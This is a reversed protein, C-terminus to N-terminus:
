PQTEETELAEWDAHAFEAAIQIQLTRYDEDEEMRAFEADIWAQELRALHEELAQVIFGNQSSAAGRKIAFQIRNACAQPCTSRPASGRNGAPLQL